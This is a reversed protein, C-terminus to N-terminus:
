WQETSSLVAPSLPVVYHTCYILALDSLSLFPCTVATLAGWPFAVPLACTARGAVTCSRGWVTMKLHSKIGLFARGGCLCRWSYMVSYTRM